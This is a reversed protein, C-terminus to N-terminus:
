MAVQRVIRAFSPPEMASDCRFDTRVDSVLGWM